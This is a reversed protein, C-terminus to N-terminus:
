GVDSRSGLLSACVSAVAECIIRTSSKEMFARCRLEMELPGPVSPGGPGACEIEFACNISCLFYPSIVDSHYNDARVRM